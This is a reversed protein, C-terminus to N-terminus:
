VTEEALSAMLAEAGDRLLRRAGSRWSLGCRADPGTLGLAGVIGDERFVPVAMAVAGPILEGESVAVGAARIEDLRGRLEQESPADATVPELGQVIVEELIEPPAFALLVRSM